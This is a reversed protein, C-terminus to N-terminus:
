KVLSYLIVHDGEYIKHFEQDLFLRVASSNGTFDTDYTSGHSTMKGFTSRGEKDVMLLYDFGAKQFDRLRTALFLLDKPTPTHDIPHFSLTNRGLWVPPQQSTFSSYIVIRSDTSTLKMAAQMDPLNPVRSAKLFWANGLVIAIHVLVIAAAIMRWHKNERLKELLRPFGFSAAIILWFLVPLTYQPEAFLIRELVYTTALSIIIAIKLWRNMRPTDSGTAFILGLFGILGCGFPFIFILPRFYFELNTLDTLQIPGFGGPQYGGIVVWSGPPDHLSLSLWALLGLLPALGWLLSLKVCDWVSRCDRAILLAVLIPLGYTLISMKALVAFLFAGSSLGLRGHLAFFFAAIMGTATLIDPMPVQGFHFILPSTTWIAAGFFAPYPDFWYRLVLYLFPISLLSFMVVVLRAVAHEHHKFMNAAPWGFLGIFPVELHCITYRPTPVPLPSSLEDPKSLQSFSARPTIVASLGEHFIHQAVDFTYNQRQSDTSAFPGNLGFLATVFFFAQLVGIGIWEARTPRSSGPAGTGPEPNWNSTRADAFIGKM